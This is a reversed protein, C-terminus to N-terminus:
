YLHRAGQDFLRKPKVLHRSVKQFSRLNRKAQKKKNKQQWDGDTLDLPWSVQNLCAQICHVHIQTVVPTGKVEKKWSIFPCFCLQSAALPSVRPSWKGKFSKQRWCSWNNHVSSLLFSMASLIDRVASCDASQERQERQEWWGSYHKSQSKRLSPEQSIGTRLQLICFDIIQEAPGLCSIQQINTFWLARKKKRLACRTLFLKLWQKLHQLSQSKDLSCFVRPIRWVSSRNEEWDRIPLFSHKFSPDTAM